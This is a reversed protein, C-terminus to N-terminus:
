GMRIQIPIDAPSAPRVASGIALFLIERAIADATTYNLTFGNTDFSALAAQGALTPTADDLRTTYCKATQLDALARSTSGSDMFLTAYNNSPGSTAGHMMELRLTEIAGVTQMVTSFLVATPQFGTTTSKAGTATNQTTSGVFAVGGKLCIAVPTSGVSTAATTWNLTFGNTDFSTFDASRRIASSAGDTTHIVKNPVQISTPQGNYQYSSAGRGSSSSAMGFLMGRDSFTDDETGLMLMCDPKFGVTAVSQAGTTGQMTFPTIAVDTLESGGLALFGISYATANATTFNVTFGDADMTVFDAVYFTGTTLAAVKIVFTTDLSGRGGSNDDNDWFCCRSSSSVAVGFFHGADQNAAATTAGDVSRRTGFFFVIKPQFGVGTVPKNGTAAPVTLSGVYASLSM